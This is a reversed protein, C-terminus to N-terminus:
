MLAETVARPHHEQIVPVYFSTAGRDGADVSLAIGVLSPPKLIPRLVLNQLVEGARNLNLLAQQCGPRPVYIDHVEIVEPVCTIVYRNGFLLRPLQFRGAM